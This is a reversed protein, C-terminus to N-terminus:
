HAPSSSFPYERMNMEEDINHIHLARGQSDLHARIWDGKHAPRDITTNQDFPIRHETNTMDKIVYAAGELRTVQGSIHPKEDPKQSLTEQYGLTGLVIGLGIDGQQSYSRDTHIVCGPLSLSFLGVIGVALTFSKM